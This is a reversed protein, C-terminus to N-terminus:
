VYDVIADDPWSRYLFSPLGERPTGNARARVFLYHGLDDRRWDVLPEAQAARPWRSEHYPHGDATFSTEVGFGAFELLRYLEHRTYERNHRGYPGFGSYPDYINAGHVMAMVNDIRAVNPTTVVLLGGPQLVRHIERLTALPNMLLHEIIECFLVVRFSGADFPLPEEEVNVLVSPHAREVRTTGRVPVFSVTDVTEGSHGYYNALTLELDTYQELLQTTFFPNAGLELCPGSEDRVMAWTHCFRWLSDDLYVDLHGPTEGNVSWTRFMATLEELTVGTPLPAPPTHWVGAVAPVQSHPEALPLAADLADVARRLLRQIPQPSSRLARGAIRRSRQRISPPPATM